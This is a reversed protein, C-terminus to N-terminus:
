ISDLRFGLVANQFNLRFVFGLVLRVQIRFTQNLNQFQDLRQVFRIRFRSVSVQRFGVVAPSCTNDATVGLKLSEFQCFIWFMHFTQNKSRLSQLTMHKLHFSQIQASDLFNQRFGLVSVEVSVLGIKKISDLRIKASDQLEIQMGIRTRFTFGTRIM